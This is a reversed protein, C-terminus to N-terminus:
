KKWKEKNEVWWQITKKIGEEITHQTEWGLIERARTCNLARFKITTPKNQVYNIKSPRHGAYKLAWKVVDGVTTRIGSGINFIEFNFKDNDAMMAIARAFDDAYLVDRVVDPSGWVEFPDIKDVAKRILAPIFNSVSPDFKDYPGFINALRVIIIEMEYQKHLFFCLKEIFRMAWAFGFYVSHPDKNLDLEEEKISGEFEQYLAASGIFIVRKINELHFAEIMQKNMMLNENMHEWPYFRVFEAGGAFSAAMIACDCGKAMKRCDRLSRLDGRIYNIQKNKIVPKTKHYSAFIEATPCNGLIYRLINTGAMGTAGALFIKKNDLPM